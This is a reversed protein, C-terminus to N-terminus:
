TEHARLHTYSVASLVLGIWGWVSLPQTAAVWAGTVTLGFQFPVYLVLLARYWPDAEIAHRQDEPPNLRDQSLVADLLPLVLYVVVTSVWLWPEWGSHVYRMVNLWVLAPFAPSLLWWWRKPDRWRTAPPTSASVTSM